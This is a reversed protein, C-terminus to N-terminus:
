LAFDQQYNQLVTLSNLPTLIGPIQPSILSQLGYVKKGQCIRLTMGFHCSERESILLYCDSIFNKDEM